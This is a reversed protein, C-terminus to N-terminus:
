GIIFIAAEPKLNRIWETEPADPKARGHVNFAMTEDDKESAYMFLVPANQDEVRALEIILESVTM